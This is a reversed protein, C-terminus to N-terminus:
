EPWFFKTTIPLFTTEEHGCSGCEFDTVMETTPTAKRIKKRLARLDTAPIQDYVKAFDMPQGNISVTILALEQSSRNYPVNHKDYKKLKAELDKEDKGNAIRFEVKAKTKPLQYVFTNNETLTCEEPTNFPQAAICNNLDYTEEHNEGCSPCVVSVPYDPGFSHIRLWFLMTAKDGPLIQDVSIKPSVLVSQLLRDITSNEKAYDKNVIIDEEKATIEKIEVVPNQRLPHNEPYFVGQSPLEVLHKPIIFSFDSTQSMAEVELPSEETNKNELGLRELNNRM